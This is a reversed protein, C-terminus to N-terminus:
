TMREGFTRQGAPLQAPGVQASRLGACAAPLQQSAARPSSSGQQPVCGSSSMSAPDLSAHSANIYALIVVLSVHHQALAAAAQQMLVSSIGVMRAKLRELSLLQWLNAHMNRNTRPRRVLWVRMHWEQSFPGVVGGGVKMMLNAPGVTNLCLM